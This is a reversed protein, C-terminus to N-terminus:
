RLLTTAHALVDHSIATLLAVSTAKAIGRVFLRSLGTRRAAANALECLSARARYTQKAEPGAMRRKWAEVEASGTKASDRTREPVAVLVEVGGRELTEIAEHHAHNADALVQVPLAGTRREVQEVMPALTGMDSGVNTVGVAVITRPGGMPDGATAMQVNLAPRFGGDAMKMVRAEPDTTSARPPKTGPRRAADLQRVVGLAAEVRRAFDRAGAERAARQKASLTPDDGQALVARLHLAAQERLEELSAERRFSPASASARVRLGDVAVTQLSL